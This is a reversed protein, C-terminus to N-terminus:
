WHAQSPTGIAQWTWDPRSNNYKSVVFFFLDLSFFHLHKAEESLDKPLPDL